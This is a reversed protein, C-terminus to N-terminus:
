WNWYFTELWYEFDAMAVGKFLSRKFVFWGTERTTRQMVFIYCAWPFFCKFGLEISVLYVLMKDELIM